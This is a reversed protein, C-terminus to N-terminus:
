TRAASASGGNSGAPPRGLVQPAILALGLIAWFFIGMFPGELAVTFSAVVTTAALAALLWIAVAKDDGSLRRTFPVLRTVALLMIAVLALLGPLGTRYLLNVFSNHPGSVDFPDEPNGTRRDYRIGEWEFNSPRGFGVGFFPRRASEELMFSWFALRWRANAQQSSERFSATLEGLGSAEADAEAGVSDLPLVTPGVGAAPRITLNDIYVQEGPSPASTARIHVGGLLDGGDPRLKIHIRAWEGKAATSNGALDETAGAWTGDTGITIEGGDWTRPVYVWASLRHRSATALPLTLTKALRLDDTYSAKLSYRGAVARTKSVALGNEAFSSYGDTNGFEIGSNEQLSYPRAKADIPTHTAADDHDPRSAADSTPTEATAREPGPAGRGSGAGADEIELDDPQPNGGAVVEEGAGRAEGPPTSVLLQSAATAPSPVEPLRVQEAVASLGAGLVLMAGVGGAFAVRRGSMSFAGVIALAVLLGVWVSRASGLIILAVTFVTAAYQWPQIAIGAVHRAAIWAVYIIAYMGSAAAILNLNSSVQWGEPAWSSAALAAIALAGALAIVRSLWLFEFRERVLLVLLPLFVSYEILGVDNLVRPFGWDMLGRVVAVLGFFWLILLPILTGTRRLGQLWHRPPTRLLAATLVVVLVVETPHVWSLGLEIKSFTRGFAGTLLFLAALVLLEFRIRPSDVEARLVEASDLRVGESPRHAGNLHRPSARSPTEAPAPLTGSLGASQASM